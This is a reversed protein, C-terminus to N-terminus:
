PEGSAPRCRSGSPFQMALREEWKRASHSGERGLALGGGLALAGAVFKVPLVRKWNLESLRHLVAELHPIGSGSAEPAFRRVLTVSLSAGAMGFFMPFAWGWFPYQHSWEILGNRFADAGALAIRFFSAVLGARLGVLAARPFMRRRQERINLDEQIESLVEKPTVTIDQMKKNNNDKQM